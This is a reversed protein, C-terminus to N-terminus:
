AAGRCMRGRWADLWPAVWSGGARCSGLRGCWSCRRSVLRGPGRCFRRARGGGPVPFLCENRGREGEMEERNHRGGNIAMLPAM